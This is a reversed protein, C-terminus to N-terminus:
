GGEEQKEDEGGKLTFQKCVGGNHKVRPHFEKPYGCNACTEDGSGMPNSLDRLTTTAVKPEPKDETRVKSTKSSLCKLEQPSDILGMGTLKFEYFSKVSNIIYLKDEYSLGKGLLSKIVEKGEDSLVFQKKM